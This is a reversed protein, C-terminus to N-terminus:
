HGGIESVHGDRDVRVNEGNIIHDYLSKDVEVRKTEDNIRVQLIFHERDHQMVPGAGPVVIETTDPDDHEHGVVQGEYPAPNREGAGLAAGVGIVATPGIGAALGAFIALRKKLRNRREEKEAAARREEREGSTEPYRM